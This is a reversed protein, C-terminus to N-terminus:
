NQVAYFDFQDRKTGKRLNNLSPADNTLFIGYASSIPHAISLYVHDSAPNHACRM